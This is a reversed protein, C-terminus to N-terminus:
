ELRLVEGKGSAVFTDTVPGVTEFLEKMMTDTVNEDLGGVFLRPKEGLIVDKGSQRNEGKRRQTIEIRRPNFSTSVYLLGFDHGKLLLVYSKM